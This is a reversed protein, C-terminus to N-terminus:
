GDALAEIISELLHGLYAYVALPGAQPDDPDAALETEESVDLRTGLVLRLDNVVGMWSLLADEDLREEGITQAMLDLASRRRALLEDHVLEHYGADRRPDDAYAVPFLRRLNPDAEGSEGADLVSRLQGVLAALLAREGDPLRVEFDGKRTRRVISVPRAADDGM